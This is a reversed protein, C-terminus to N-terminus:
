ASRMDPLSTKQSVEVSSAISVSSNPYIASPRIPQPMGTTRAAESHSHSCPQSASSPSPEVGSTAAPRMFTVMGPVPSPVMIMGSVMGPAQHPEASRQQSGNPQPVLYM